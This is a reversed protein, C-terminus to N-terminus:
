ICPRVKNINQTWLMAQETSVQILAGSFALKKDKSLLKINSCKHKSCCPFKKFYEEADDTLDGKKHILFKARWTSYYNTEILNNDQQLFLNYYKKFGKAREEIAADPVEAFFRKAEYLSNLVEKM